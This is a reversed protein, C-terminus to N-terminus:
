DIKVVSNMEKVEGRRVLIMADQLEEFKFIAKEISLDIKKALNLMKYASERRINHVTKITRGWINSYDKITIPTSAIQALVLVGGHKLNRLAKEVIEGVPPFSIIADLKKPFDEKLINGVWKAGNEYAVEMHHKSRTSVYVDIGSYNAIKLLYYATPGFGIVGINDGPKPNALDYALYSAIGPCMMPALDDLGLPIDNFPFVYEEYAVVYEAFGGDVDWGTSIFYPCYNEWGSICYKCGNCTCYLWSLGVKDGINIRRVEEGVKDVVGAIEHGLIIPRKHLPLDGEAIHLDTRCIGCYKVKIRVQGYKPEPIPYEDVLKLPKENIKAQKDLIWAKM